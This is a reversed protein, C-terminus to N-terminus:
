HRYFLVVCLLYNIYFIQLPDIIHNQKGNVHVLLENMDALFMINKLLAWPLM